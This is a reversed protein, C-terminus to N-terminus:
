SNKVASPPHCARHWHSSEPSTQRAWAPGFSYSFILSPNGHSQKFPKRRTHHPHPTKPQTLRCAKPQRKEDTAKGPRELAFPLEALQGRSLAPLLVPSCTLSGKPLRCLLM